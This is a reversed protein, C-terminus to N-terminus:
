AANPSPQVCYYVYVKAAVDLVKAAQGYSSQCSAIIRGNSSKKAATCINEIFWSCFDSHLSDYEAKTTVRVLEAFFSELRELIKTSSEKAFVRTMTSFDFSIEVINKTKADHAAQLTFPVDQV